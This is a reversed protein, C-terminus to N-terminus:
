GHCRTRTCIPCAAVQSLYAFMPRVKMLSEDYVSADTICEDDLALVLVSCRSRAHGVRACRGERPSVSMSPMLELHEHMLTMMSDCTDVSGARGHDPAANAAHNVRTVYACERRVWCTPVCAYQIMRACHHMQNSPSQIYADSHHTVSSLAALAQMLRDLHCGTGKVRSCAVVALPRLVRSNYFSSLGFVGLM